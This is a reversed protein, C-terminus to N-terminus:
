WAFSYNEIYIYINKMCKCIGIIRVQIENITQYGGSFSSSSSTKLERIDDRNKREMFTEISRM